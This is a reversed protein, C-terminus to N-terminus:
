RNGRTLFNDSNQLVRLKMVTDVVTLQKGYGSALLISEVDEWGTAKFRIKIDDYCRLMIGVLQSNREARGVLVMNHQKRRGWTKWM